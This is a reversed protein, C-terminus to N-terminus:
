GEPGAEWFARAAEFLNILMQLGDTGLAQARARRPGTFSPHIFLEPHFQCSYLLRRRPGAYRMAQVRCRAAPAQPDLPFPETSPDPELLDVFLPSRAEDVVEDSHSETFLLPRGRLGVFLPDAEGAPTLRLPFTGFEGPRPSPILNRPPSAALERAIPASPGDGGMHAVANWGDGFARALLQHSGCVALSPVDTERLLASLRDLLDRWRPDRGWEQWETYSGSFFFLFVGEDDFDAAGRDLLDGYWVQRVELGMQAADAAARLGELNPGHGLDRRADITVYLVTRRRPLSVVARPADDGAPLDLRFSAPLYLGRRPAVRVAYAGGREVVFPGPAAGALPPPDFAVEEVLAPDLRAGDLADRFTLALTAEPM